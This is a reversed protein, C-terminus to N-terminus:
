RSTGIVEYIKQIKDVYRDITFEKHFRDRGSEGFQQRLAPNDVLQRVAQALAFSDGPSILLGTEGHIVIETIGGHNSAIVPKAAAMAELAVLGFPEPETSPVVAIDCGNWIESIELAFGQIVFAEKAPSLDIAAQLADMFHSQRDPTNGVIAFKINRVGWDWLIKAAEVLVLQGKWRNIRGVLVVLIDSDRLNLKTRYISADALNQHINKDLGNWVMHLKGSLKPETKLLNNQTAFSNCIVYDAFTSLLWAYTKRVIEPKIIIEHVHWVHPIRHWYAWVAGSLVALTNSHVLDIKRGALAHTIERVSKFLAWPLRIIGDFSITARSLTTIPLILYEIKAKKLEDVLLGNKPLIVLPCYKERNLNAVLALLAKDSGYLDASQHFFVITAVL